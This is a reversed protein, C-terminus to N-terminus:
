CPPYLPCIPWPGTLPLLSGLPKGVPKGCGDPMGPPGPAGKGAGPLPVFPPAVPLPLPEGILV